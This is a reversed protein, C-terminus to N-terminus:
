DTSEYCNLDCIEKVGSREEVYVHTARGKSTQYYLFIKRVGAYWKLFILFIFATLISLLPVLIFAKFYSFKLAEVKIVETSMDKDDYNIFSFFPSSDSEFYKLHSHKLKKKKFYNM